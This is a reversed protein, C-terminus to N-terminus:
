SLEANTKNRETV